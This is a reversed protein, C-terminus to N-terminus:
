KQVGSRDLRMCTSQAAHGQACRIKLHVAEGADLGDIADCFAQGIRHYGKFHLFILCSELFSLLSDSTTSLTFNTSTARRRDLAAAFEV